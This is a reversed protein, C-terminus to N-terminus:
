RLWYTMPQLGIPQRVLTYKGHEVRKIRQRKIKKSQQLQYIAQSVKREANRIGPLLMKVQKIIDKKEIYPLNSRDAAVMIDMVVDTIKAKYKPLTAVM